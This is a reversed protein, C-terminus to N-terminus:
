CPTSIANEQPVPVRALTKPRRKAIRPIAFSFPRYRKGFGSLSQRATPSTLCSAALDRRPLRCDFQRRPVRVRGFPVCSVFLRRTMVVFLWTTVSSNVQDCRRVCRLYPKPADRVVSEVLGVFAQRHPPDTPTFLGGGHLQFLLYSTPGPCTGVALGRRCLRFVRRATHSPRNVNM